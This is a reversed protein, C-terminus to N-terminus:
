VICIAVNMSHMNDNVTKLITKKKYGNIFPINGIYESM